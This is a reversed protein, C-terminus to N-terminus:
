YSSSKWSIILDACIISLWYPWRKSLIMILSSRVTANLSSFVVNSLSSVSVWQTGTLQNCEYSLSIDKITKKCLQMTLDVVM